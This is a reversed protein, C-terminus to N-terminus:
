VTLLIDKSRFIVLLRENRKPATLLSFQLITIMTRIVIIFIFPLLKFYPLTLVGNRVSIMENLKGKRM